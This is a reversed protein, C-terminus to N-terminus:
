RTDLTGGGVVGTATADASSIFISANPRHSPFNISGWWTVARASAEPIFSLRAFSILGGLLSATGSEGELDRIAVAATCMDAADDQKGPVGGRDRARSLHERRFPRM